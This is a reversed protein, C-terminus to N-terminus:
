VCVVSRAHARKDVCVSKETSVETVRLSKTIFMRKCLFMEYKTYVKVDVTINDSFYIIILQMRKQANVDTRPSTITQVACRIQLFSVDDSRNQM